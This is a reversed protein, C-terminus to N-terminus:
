VFYWMMFDPPMEYSLLEDCILLLTRDDIRLINAKIWDKLLINFATIYQEPNATITTITTIAAEERSIAM